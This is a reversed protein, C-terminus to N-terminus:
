PYEQRYFVVVTMIGTGGANAATNVTAIIRTKENFLQPGTTLLVGGLPYYIGVEPRVDTVADGSWVGLNGFGDPDASESGNAEWGIDIDLAETGTDIDAAQVYGGLVRAGKPLWCLRVVDAATPNAAFTYSGWAVKLNCGDGFGGVAVGDAGRTGTLTAM